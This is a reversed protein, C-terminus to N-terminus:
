LYFGGNETVQSTLEGGNILVKIQNLDSSRTDIYGSLSICSVLDFLTLIIWIM